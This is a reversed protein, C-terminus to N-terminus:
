VLPKKDLKETSFTAAGRASKLKSYTMAFYCNIASLGGTDQTEKKVSRVPCAQVLSYTKRCDTKVWQGL